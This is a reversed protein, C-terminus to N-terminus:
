EKDKNTIFNNRFQKIYEQYNDLLIDTVQNYLKIFQKAKVEAESQKLFDKLQFTETIKEVECLEIGKILRLIHKIDFDTISRTLQYLSEYDPLIGHKFCILKFQNCDFDPYKFLMALSEIFMDIDETMYATDFNKLLFYDMVFAKSIARKSKLEEIQIRSLSAIEKEISYDVNEIKELSQFQTNLEFIQLTHISLSKAADQKLKQIMTKKM